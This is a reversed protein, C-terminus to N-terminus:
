LHFVRCMFYKSFATWNLGELQLVDKIHKPMVEDWKVELISHGCPLVPRRIYDGILFRNLELSSTIEKDFTVRVNGGSYIYPIREYTVIVKPVLGRLRVETFLKKKEEPMDETVDPVDGRLFIECEEVSLACSDKLCMSRIKSKKELFIRGTDYNYYRIRFKSRPDTGALNDTLCSDNLDDFYASRIMYSGNARVHPDLQMVGMARIKLIAEQKADIMYKYEHRFRKTKGYRSASAQKEVKPEEFEPEKFEPEKFEPEKLKPEKLKPEKRKPKKFKPEKLEPEEIPTAPAILGKQRRFAM